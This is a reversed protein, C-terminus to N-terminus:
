YEGQLYMNLTISISTTYMYIKYQVLGLLVQILTYTFLRIRTKM